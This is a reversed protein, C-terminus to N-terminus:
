CFPTMYAAFSSLIEFRTEYNSDFLQGGEKPLYVALFQIKGIKSRKQGFLPDFKTRNLNRSWIQFGRTM